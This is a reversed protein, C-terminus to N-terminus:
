KTPNKRKPSLPKLIPIGMRGLISGHVINKVKEKLKSEIPIQFRKIIRTLVMGYPTIRGVLKSNKMFKM